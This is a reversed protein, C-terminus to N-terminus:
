TNSLDTIAPRHHLESPGGSNVVESGTSMDELEQQYDSLTPTSRSTNRSVLMDPIDMGFQSRATIQLKVLNNVADGLTNAIKMLFDDDQFLSLAHFQPTFDIAHLKMAKMRLVTEFSTDQFYEPIKTAVAFDRMLAQAMVTVPTLDIKKSAILMWGTGKFIVRVSGVIGILTQLRDQLEYLLKVRNLTSVRQHKYLGWYIGERDSADFGKRRYRELSGDILSSAMCKRGLEKLLVEKKAINRSVHNAHSESLLDFSDRSPVRKTAENAFLEALLFSNLLQKVKTLKDRMLELTEINLNIHKEKTVLSQFNQMYLKQSGSESLTRMLQTPVRPTNWRKTTLIGHNMLHLKFSRVVKLLRTGEMWGKNDSDLATAIIRHLISIVFVSRCRIKDSIPHATGNNRERDTKEQFFAESLEDYYKQLYESAEATLNVVDYDPLLPVNETVKQGAPNACYRIIEPRYSHAYADRQLILNSHREDIDHETFAQQFCEVVRNLKQREYNVALVIQKSFELPM